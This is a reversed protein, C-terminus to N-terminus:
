EKRSLRGLLPHHTADGSLPGSFGDLNARQIPTLIPYMRNVMLRWAANCERDIAILRDVVPRVHEDDLLGASLMKAVLKQQTTL